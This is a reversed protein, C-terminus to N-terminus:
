KGGCIFARIRLVCVIGLHHWLPDFDNQDFEVKFYIKMDLFLIYLYFIKNIYVIKLVKKWRLFSNSWFSKSWFSVSATHRCVSKEGTLSFFDYDVVRVNKVVQLLITCKRAWCTMRCIFLRDNKTNDKCFIFQMEAIFVLLSTKYQMRNTNDKCGSLKVEALWVGGVLWSSSCPGAM